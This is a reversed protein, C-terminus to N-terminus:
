AGRKARERDHAARGRAKWVALQERRELASLTDRRVERKLKDYNRLREAPVQARVACGPENRHACDRFRCHQAWRAVDDYAADLQAEDADLRLTRLGPTDIICAGGPVRHLTRVTTTHRGHSDEGRVPGTDQVAAGLLTNTLTSKGAGSSGLLVLTQGAALWPALADRTTQALGNVALAPVGPPLMARVAQVRADLAAAECLDAKTLVVVADVGSLRALTVFREMRRLNHDHDLGMVLLAADVNAVLAQRHGHTNRRAIRTRAALRSQVWLDGTADPEALVWDGTALADDDDALLAALAIPVRASCEHAGDHLLVRNRHVECVRMPAGPATTLTDDACWLSLLPQALGIRRLAELDLDELNM